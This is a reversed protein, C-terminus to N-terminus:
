ASAMGLVERMDFLGAEGNARRAALFTAARLGGAAFNRRSTARHALELQSM